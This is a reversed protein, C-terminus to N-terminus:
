LHGESLADWLRRLILETKVDALELEVNGKRAVNMAIAEGLPVVVHEAGAEFPGGDGAAHEEVARRLEEEGIEVATPFMRETMIAPLLLFPKGLKHVHEPRRDIGAEEWLERATTEEPTEPEEILGALVETVLPVGLAQWTAYRVQRRLMVRAEAPRSTKTPRTFVAIGVADRLHAARDVYDAVYTDTRTGDALVTKVRHRYRRLYGDTPSSIGSM